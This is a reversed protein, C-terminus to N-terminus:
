EKGKIGIKACKATNDCHLTPHLRRARMAMKNKEQSMQTHLELECPLYPDHLATCMVTWDIVDNTM